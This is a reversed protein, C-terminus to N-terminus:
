LLAIGIVIPLFWIYRLIVARVPSKFNMKVLTGQFLGYVFILSAIVTNMDFAIALLIYAIIDGYRSKKFFLFILALVVALIIEFMIPNIMVLYVLVAFFLINKSLVFFKKGYDLEEKAIWALILGLFLAIYVVVATLSLTLISM